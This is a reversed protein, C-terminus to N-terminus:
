RATGRRRSGSRRRPRCSRRARSRRRCSGTRRSSNPGSPGTWTRRARPRGCARRRFEVADDLLEGGVGAQRHRADVDDVAVLRIGERGPAIGFVRRHAGGGAQQLPEAVLLDRAHHRVLEGMHLVAVRQDMVMVAVSAPAIPISALKAKKKPPPLLRLLGSPMTPTSSTIIRAGSAAISTCIAIERARSYSASRPPASIQPRGSHSAEASSRMSAAACCISLGAASRLGAVACINMTLGSCAWARPRGTRWGDASGRVSGGGARSPRRRRATPTIAPPGEPAARAGRLGRGAVLGDRRRWAACARCRRAGGGRRAVQASARQRAHEVAARRQFARQVAGAAVGPELRAVPGERAQQHRGRQPASPSISAIM